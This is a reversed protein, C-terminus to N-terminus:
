GVHLRTQVFAVTRAYLIEHQELVELALHGENVIQLLAELLVEDIYTFWLAAAVTKRM